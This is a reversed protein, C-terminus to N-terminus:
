VLINIENSVRTAATYACKKAEVQRKTNQLIDDLDVYVDNFSSGQAKHCTISYGYTVNAFQEVLIKNWQKWLPKVVLKEIQKPCSRYQDLLQKSFNRIATGTESKYKEYVVRCSDDIVILTMTHEEEGPRNVKLIWSMFKTNKCYVENLSEILTRVRGEIKPGHKMKRLVSDKIMDFYKIPVEKMTTSVVKIQDSTYLKQKVFDEGLDLGYFDSLMLIDGEEFKNIKKGKFIYRRVTDNYIDTQRNTWTIIISSENNKISKMFKQFWESKVKDLHEINEYFYVGQTDQYLEFKPLDDCKIWERFENCVATVTNLKSRVVNKMLFTKMKSLDNLLIKYRHKMIAAADSSVSESLKFSMAAMYDKFSLEAETKCFISSDDENVPPLQAPDGSFTIKPIHRFGKSKVASSKAINKLEEFISDVMDMSIMSCEDIIVFEFQPIRSGKKMDRVFITDGQNSYEMKFELLKHLTLFNISVGILQLNDIEDDFNFTDELTKKHLSESIKKLHMKFKKKIVDVAKNTPAVFAINHLYKNKIMYSVFEVVTTTKGSGAYGYLGFTQQNHDIVFEYLNQMAKKQEPKLDISELRTLYYRVNKNIRLENTLEDYKFINNFVKGVIEKFEKIPNEGSKKIKALETQDPKLKSVIDIFRKINCVSGMINVFDLFYAYQMTDFYGRNAMKLIVRKYLGVNQEEETADENEIFGSIDMNM